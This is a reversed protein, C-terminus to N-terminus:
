LTEPMAPPWTTTPVNPACHATPLSDAVADIGGKSLWDTETGFLGHLYIVVPYRRSQDRDYSRPLYVSVRKDVGLARSHVVELHVTGRDSEAATRLVPRAPAAEPRAAGGGSYCAAAPILLMAACRLSWSVVRM